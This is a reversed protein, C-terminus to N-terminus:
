EVRSLEAPPKAPAGRRRVVEVTQEIVAVLLLASGVAMALQPIWLPTADNSTSIDNFVRSQWVLRASYWALFAALVVGLGHSLMELARGARQPLQQLLLTVRIHEGRRLTHALALFGCAAMMYGAYADTGPLHFHLLRGAIGILVFALTAIMFLGALVGAGDYLFDLAKRM